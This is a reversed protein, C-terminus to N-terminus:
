HSLELSKQLHKVDYQLLSKSHRLQISERQFHSPKQNKFDEERRSRTSSGKQENLSKSRASTLRMMAPTVFM